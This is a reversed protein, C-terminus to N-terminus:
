MGCLARWSGRNERAIDAVEPFRDVVADAATRDAEYHDKGELLYSYMRAINPRAATFPIM